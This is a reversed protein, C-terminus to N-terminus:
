CCAAEQEIFGFRGKTCFSQQFQSLGSNKVKGMVGKRIVKSRGIPCCILRVGQVISQKTATIFLFLCFSPSSKM